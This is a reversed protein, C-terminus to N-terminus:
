SGFIASRNSPFFRPDADEQQGTPIGTLGSLHQFVEELVKSKYKEVLKELAFLTGSIGRRFRLGQAALESSEKAHRKSVDILRACIQEVLKRMMKPDRAISEYLSADEVGKFVLIECPTVARVTATRPTGLIAAMEGFWEGTRITGVVNGALEVVATGRTMFLIENDAPAGQVVIEDDKEFQRSSKQIAM